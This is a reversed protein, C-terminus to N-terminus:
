CFTGRGDAPAAAGGPGVTVIRWPGGRSQALIKPALGDDTIVTHKAMLWEHNFRVEGITRECVAGTLDRRGPQYEGGTLIIRGEPSEAPLNAHDLAVVFQRMTTVGTVFIIDGDAM